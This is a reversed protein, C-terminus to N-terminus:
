RDVPAPGPAPAPVPPESAEDDGLDARIGEAAAAAAAQKARRRDTLRALLFAGEMLVVVPVALLLMSIPDQSPTAVAAFVFVGFIIARRSRRLQAASVVGAQNLLTVMLPLEFAVGFVLVMGVAYSLYRDITIIPQVGEPNFGLLVQLGKTMVTYAIASGAIFLPAGVATFRVAYRRERAHLGPAVFAWLQWLWLPCSVIAGVLLSVKLRVTFGQLVGTTYLTCDGTQTVSQPLRCYPERLLAFIQDYFLWAVVTGVLLGLSARFLRIRLERLHEALPM